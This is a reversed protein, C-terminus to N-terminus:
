AYQFNAGGSLLAGKQSSSGGERRSNYQSSLNAEFGLRVRGNVTQSESSLRPLLQENDLM